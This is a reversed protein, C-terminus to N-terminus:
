QRSREAARSAALYEASTLSVVEVFARDFDPAFRGQAQLSLAARMADRGRDGPGILEDATIRSACELCLPLTMIASIRVRRSFMTPVCIKPAATADCGCGTRQCIM